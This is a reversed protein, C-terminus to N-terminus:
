SARRPQQSYVARKHTSCWVGDASRGCHLWPASDNVPWKCRGHMPLAETPVPEAFSPPAPPVYPAKPPALSRPTKVANNPQSGVKLPMEIGLRKMKGIVASRTTGIVRAIQTSTLGEARMERLKAVTADDWNVDTM